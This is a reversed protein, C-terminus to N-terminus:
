KQKGQCAQIIDSSSLLFLYLAAVVSGEHFLNSRRTGTHLTGVTFQMSGSVHLHCVVLSLLFTKIFLSLFPPAPVFFFPKHVVNVLMNM